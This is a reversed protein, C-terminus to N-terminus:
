VLVELSKWLHMAAYARWPRWSDAMELVKLPRNKGLAKYLGLDTHPFADPWSLARMAIYQATWEGIGPLEKLRSIVRDPDCGPKLVVSGDAVARALFLITNARSRIIGLSIIEDIEVEAIREASPFLHTLEPFPTVIPEGFTKNFRGALTTAARVSVQQGLVARVALEFGDFAGPVRLGTHAIALEGLHTEIEVPHASLDFLHKTRSLVQTM